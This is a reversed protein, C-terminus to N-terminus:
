AKRDLGIKKAIDARRVAYNPAVLPHDPSLGWRQRYEDVTLNHDTHLHRRLMKRKQGCELCTVYDPRVSARIPVASKLPEERAAPEAALASLAKHVNAILTSIQDVAVDNNGVHATVIDSTLTILMDQNQEKAVM